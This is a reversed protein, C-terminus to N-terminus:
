KKKLQNAVLRIRMGNYIMKRRVPLKKIKKIDGQHKAVGILKESCTDKKKATSPISGCM